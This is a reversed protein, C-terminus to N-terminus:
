KEGKAKYTYKSIADFQHYLCVAKVMDPWFGKHDFKPSANERITEASTAIFHAISAETGKRKEEKL